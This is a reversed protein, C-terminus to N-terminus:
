YLDGEIKQLQEHPQNLRQHEHQQSRHEREQQTLVFLVRDYFGSSLISVIVPLKCTANAAKPAAMATPIIPIFADSATPRLGPADVFTSTWDIRAMANASAM